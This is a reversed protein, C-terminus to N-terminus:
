VAKVTTEVQGATAVLQMGAGGGESENCGDGSERDCVVPVYDQLVAVPESDDRDTSEM